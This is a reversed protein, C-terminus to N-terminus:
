ALVSLLKLVVGAFEEINNKLKTEKQNKSTSDNVISLLQLLRTKDSKKPFLKIIEETKLRCLRSIEDMLEEDTQKAAGEAAKTFPNVRPM